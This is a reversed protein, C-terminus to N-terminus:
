HLHSPVHISLVPASRPWPCASGLLLCPTTSCHSFVLMLGLRVNASIVRCSLTAIANLCRSRSQEPHPPPCSSCDGQTKMWRCNHALRMICAGIVGSSTPLQKIKKAETCVSVAEEEPTWCTLCLWTWYNFCSFRFIQGENNEMRQEQSLCSALKAQM